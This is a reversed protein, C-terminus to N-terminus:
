EMVALTDAWAGLRRAEPVAVEAMAEVKAKDAACGAELAEAAAAALAMAEVSAAAAMGM